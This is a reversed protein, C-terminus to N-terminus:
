TSCDGCPSPAQPATSTSGRRALILAAAGAALYAAAVIALALHLGDYWSATTQPVRGIAAIGVLVGLQRNTNVVAGAHNANEDGAAQVTAATMAATVLGAGSSAAALVLAIYWYPTSPEVGTLLLTALGAILLCTAMITANGVRHHIRTYVVNGVPFFMTMPLLLLGAHLASLGRANQFFLGMLYLAGYLAGSYLFGVINPVAFSARAFLHWPMVPTRTRRQQIPLAAVGLMLFSLALVVPIAVVGASHGEILVYAGSAVTAFLLVHGLTSVRAGSGVDAPVVRVALLMGVIVVPVNILFISRWGFTSVLVGGLTPGVAAATAVMASWLGLMKARRAPETFTRVLLSLSSPMFLAAGVGEVARAGILAGGTPAFACAISAMLFVGMGILYLRRSGFSTALSGGLLLLLSAFTLVYVDVVWTLEVLSSGFSEAIAPVAVNVVTADISAMVFGSALAVLVLGPSRSDNSGM